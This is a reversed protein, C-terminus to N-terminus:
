EKCNNIAWTLASALEDYKKESDFIGYSGDNNPEGLYLLMAQFVDYTYVKEDVAGLADNLGRLLVSREYADENDFVYVALNAVSAAEEAMVIEMCRGMIEKKSLKLTDEKFRKYYRATLCNFRRLTM